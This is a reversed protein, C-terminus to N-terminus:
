RPPLVVTRGAAPEHASAIGQAHLTADRTGVAVRLQSERRQERGADVPDRLLDFRRRDEDPVHVRRRLEVAYGPRESVRRVRERLTREGLRHEALLDDLVVRVEEPGLVGGEVGRDGVPLPRAVELPY